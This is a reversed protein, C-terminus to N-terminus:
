CMDSSASLLVKEKVLLRELLSEERAKIRDMRSKHIEELEERDRSLQRCFFAAYRMFYHLHGSSTRLLKLIHVRVLLM